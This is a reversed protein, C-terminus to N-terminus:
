NELVMWKNAPLELSINTAVINITFFKTLKLFPQHTAFLINNTHPNTTTTGCNSCSHLNSSMDLM